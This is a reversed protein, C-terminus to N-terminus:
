RNRTVCSITSYTSNSPFGFRTSTTCANPSSNSTNTLAPMEALWGIKHRVMTANAVRLCPPVFAAAGRVETPLLPICGALVAEFIRQTLQNAHAYRAPLLLVTALADAYITAVQPFPLRGIFRLDPWRRTNTWKGAILHPLQGAAPAFYTDFADDRDYQNGVYVLPTRRPLTALAAPNATDIV